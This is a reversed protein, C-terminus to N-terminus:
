LSTVFFCYKCSEHPNAFRNLHPGEGTWTHPLNVVKPHLAQGVRGEGSNAKWLFTSSMLVLTFMTIYERQLPSHFFEILLNVVTANNNTYMLCDQWRYQPPGANYGPMYLSQEMGAIILSNWKRKSVVSLYTSQCVKFCIHQFSRKFQGSTWWTTWFLEDVLKSFSNM